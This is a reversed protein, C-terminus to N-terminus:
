NVKVVKRMVAGQETKIKLFYVGAPLHSINIEIQSNRNAFQSQLSAICQTEVLVTRGMVDFIRIESIRNDSTRNDSTEYRMDCITLEGTTPNPYIRIQNEMEAIGTTNSCAENSPESVYEGVVAKVIYCYEIDLSLETDVYQMNEINEAIIANDRLLTFSAPVGNYEWALYIESTSLATATLNVPIEITIVVSINECVLGSECNIEDIIHIASVCFNYDKEEGVFTYFEETLMEAVLLGDIYVNYGILNADDAPKTWSVDVVGAYGVNYVLETPPSCDVNASICQPMLCNDFVAYVCFDNEGSNLPASFNTETTTGLSELNNYIEYYNPAGSTPATWSLEAMNGSVTVALDSIPNCEVPTCGGCNTEWSFFTGSGPNGSAAYIPAGDLYYIEFSCESTYSGTTWSLSVTVGSNIALSFSAFSGSSFTLSQTPSGDSFNVVLANGNWGDGYGDYLDFIVTCKDTYAFSLTTNRGEEDTILLNFPININGPVASASLTVNYPAANGQDPEMDGFDATNSNITIQESNSTLFGTLGKAPENGKNTITPIMDATEGPNLMGNGNGAADDIATNTLNLDYDFASINFNRPFADDDTEILATFTLKQKAPASPSLVFTFAGEVTKIEGVAFNGFDAHDSTITVYESSSSLTVSVGNVAEEGENILSMNFKVTESPNSNGNDNGESDDVVVEHIAIPGVAVANVADLANVRGSGYTNGKSSTPTPLHVATTELIECIEAPTLEPNKSLMLAIVGAVCPTAMSTGDWGSVYGSNNNYALSKIDVGPACVDPRILGMGPNYPYDNFGSISQWTAPGWSSFSAINDNINTAGVAIVASTGGTTTQDPHLWPPPCNAPVRVQNPIASYYVGEHDNGAAISAVVGAELVNIMTNRFQIREANDGGGHKGGSMSAVHAGHEVAFEFGSCMQTVTGSGGSNWVKLAMIKAKPAMGTQSGATGDGAVTGACHTGHGHDDMPNNSNSIYNWGHNPYDPHEWLHTKLDLHNYNVGTDIIAVIIDEGEYGLDWVQDAQVKTINYTLERTPDAGTPQEEEPIMQYEKDFGIAQVDPHLSLEEIAEINAYCNIFNAIWFSQVESVAPMTSLLDMVGQQTEQSFRKLENVVFTRKAAKTPFVSAKARMTMQEYQQDMIINIRILDGAERLSMEQQLEFDIKANNQATIIQCSCIAILAIFFLKKM